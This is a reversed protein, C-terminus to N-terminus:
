RPSPKTSVPPVFAAISLLAFMVRLDVVSYSKMANLLFFFVSFLFILNGMQVGRYVTVAIFTLAILGGLAGLEFWIELFVNHPYGREDEGYMLLNFSGFGYGLSFRLPDQFVKDLVFRYEGIRKKEDKGRTEEMEGSESETNQGGSKEQINKTDQVLVNYRYMTREFPGQLFSSSSVLGILAGNGILFVLFWYVWLKSLGQYWLGKKMRIIRILYYSGIILLTIFFFLIPGRAATGLLLVAILNVLILSSKGGLYFALIGSVGLILGAQLYLSELYDPDFLGLVELMDEGRLAYAFFSFLGFCLSFACLYRVLVKLRLDPSFLPVVFAVINTMFALGKWHAYEESPTWFFLSIFCLLTFLGLSLLSLDRSWEREMLSRVWGKISGIFLSYLLVASGTLLTLDIPFHFGYAGLLGKIFGSVLYLFFLFELM